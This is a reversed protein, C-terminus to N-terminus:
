SIGAGSGVMSIMLHKIGIGAKATPEKATPKVDNGSIKSKGEDREEHL